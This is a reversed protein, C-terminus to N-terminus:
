FYKRCGGAPTACGSRKIAGELIDLGAALQADTIVLPALFRIVNGYRGASEIILGQQAALNVVEAVLKTAPERTKEDTVLELGIMAGLGRIDGIVPYTERWSAYTDTVTKGIEQARVDLRGREMIEIAKLAAACSLANGNFTGGIVGGTVGDMIKADAVVASLPLGGAISKATTLIDPACGAERWYDSAFMRGTRCFGSQVEDAVLLIGHADCIERVAKVWELPAPIFGGEGQLPEVVMAAITEAPACEEFVREISSIYYEMQGEQSLGAPARYTYPFEARYIGDPFPGMGLAYAKKSTMAMTMLTRGHFAGSFVIINPRGTYSKAIKVSNEDAEAGSNALFTKKREGRVPVIENLKEALRVYGEHTVINFMGHFYKESQEKVAAIIESQSYGVNLVVACGVWRSGDLDGIMAGEGRAIAVPYGCRVAGATAAKRREILEKSKPGPVTETVIEPLADRLM